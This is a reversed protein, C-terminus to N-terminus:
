RMRAYLQALIQAKNREICALVTRSPMPSGWSDSGPEKFQIDVQDRNEAGKGYYHRAFIRVQSDSHLRLEDIILQRDHPQLEQYTTYFVIVGQARSVEDKWSKAWLTGSLFAVLLVLLALIMKTNRNAM